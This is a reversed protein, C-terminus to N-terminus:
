AVFHMSYAARPGMPPATLGAGSDDNFFLGDPGYESILNTYLRGPLPCPHKERRRHVRVFRGSQWLCYRIGGDACRRPETPTRGRTAPLMVYAVRAPLRYLFCSAPGGRRERTCPGGRSGALGSDFAHPLNWRKRHAISGPTAAESSRTGPPYDMTSPYADVDLHIGTWADMPSSLEPSFATILVRAAPATVDVESSRIFSTPTSNGAMHAVGNMWLRRIIHVGPDGTRATGPQYGLEGRRAVLVRTTAHRTKTIYTAESILHARSVATAPSLSLRKAISSFLLAGTDERGM